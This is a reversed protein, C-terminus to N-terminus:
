EKLSMSFPIGGEFSDNAEAQSVRDCIKWQEIDAAVWQDKKEEVSVPETQAIAMKVAPVSIVLGLACFAITLSKFKM